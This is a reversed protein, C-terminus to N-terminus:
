VRLNKLQAKYYDRHSPEAEEVTVDYEWLFDDMTPWDWTHAGGRM